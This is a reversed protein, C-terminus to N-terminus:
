PIFIGGLLLIARKKAKKPLKTKQRYRYTKPKKGTVKGGDLAYKIKYKRFIAKATKGSKLKAVKKKGVYWNRKGKLTDLPIATKSLNVIKKLSFCSEVFNKSIERM